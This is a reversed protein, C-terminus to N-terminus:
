VRRSSEQFSWILLQTPPLGPATLSMAGADSIRVADGEGLDLDGLRASGSAVFVHLLRADPLNVQHHLDVVYLSAAAGIRVLAHPSVGSALPTLEDPRPSAPASSYSPAGGPSSPRVWTQVFRTPGADPAVTESHVVGTGASMRQVRGPTIIGSAGSADRHTLAGTLVWTVIELDRHPHDRYGHGPEVRDDNHAVLSGFTTNAPDYHEGFSFSHRTVRGDGVTQFRDAARRLDLPM